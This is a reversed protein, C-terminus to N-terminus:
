SVHEKIHTLLKDVVQGVDMETTNVLIADSAQKLPAFTRTEDMQDRQIIDALIQQFDAQIGKNLLQNTRRRAREEPTATIFFKFDADPLVVTGIDRGELVAGPPTHALKRQLQLLVERVQQHRAVQSAGMSIKEDRILQSVDESDLFVRNYDGNWQFHIKLEGALAALPTEDDMSVQARNAVLALTRYIAGTDVLSLGLHRAILKSITSKGSGAPGDIAIILLPSEAANSGMHNGMNNM